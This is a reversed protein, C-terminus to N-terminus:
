EDERGIRSLREGLTGAQVEDLRTYRRRTAKPKREVERRDICVHSAMLARVKAEPNPRALREDFGDGSRCLDCRVIIVHAQTPDEPRLLTFLGPTPASM